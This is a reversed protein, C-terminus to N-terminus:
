NRLAEIDEAISDDPFLQQSLPGCLNEVTEELYSPEIESLIGFRTPNAFAHARQAVVGGGPLGCFDAIEESRQALDRTDVIMLREPPIRDIVREISDRWYGLYGRLSYLGRSELVEEQVPLNKNEGFRFQRFKKWTKSTKRRLSDDIISRLWPVPPRITLVYRNGPFLSELDDILYINVQSADIKLNRWWDRFRLFNRLRRDDGTELRSFHLRILRESDMEHDAAVRDEFMSGFSHTGTKAAGVGYIRAGERSSHTIRRLHRSIRHMTM